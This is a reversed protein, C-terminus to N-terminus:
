DEMEEDFDFDYAQTTEEPAFRCKYKRQNQMYASRITTYPDVSNKTMDMYLDLYSEYKSTYKVAMYPYSIKASYNLDNYTAWYVPDALFDASAGLFNRPTSPGIFPIVVYPGDAICWSALTEGTTTTDKEIGWGSAVDFLGALGLTSNVVFRAVTVAAEKPKLQLVYNVTSIPEDMNAVFDAIRNRINKTTIARYGDEIPMAVHRYFADNFTFIKRNINEYPDAKAEPRHINTACASTMLITSLLALKRFTHM